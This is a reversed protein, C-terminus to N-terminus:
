QLKTTTLFPAIIGETSTVAELESRQDIASLRPPALYLAHQPSVYLKRVTRDFFPFDFPLNIVSTNSTPDFPVVEGSDNDWALPASSTMFTADDRRDLVITRGELDIPHFFPANTPDADVVYIGDRLAVPAIGKAQAQLAVARSWEGLQRAREITEASTGCPDNPAAAGSVALVLTLFLPLSRM